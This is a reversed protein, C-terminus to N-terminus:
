KNIHYLIQSPHSDVVVIGINKKLLKKVRVTFSMKINELTIQNHCGDQIPNNKFM